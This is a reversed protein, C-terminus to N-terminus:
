GHGYLWEKGSTFPRRYRGDVAACLSYFEASGKGLPIGGRRGVSGAVCSCSWVVRAM